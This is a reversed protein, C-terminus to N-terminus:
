KHWKLFEHIFCGIPAGGRWLAVMFDPHFDDKFLKAGLAYSDKRIEDPSIYLKKVEM